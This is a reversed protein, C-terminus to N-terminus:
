AARDKAKRYATAMATPGRKGKARKDLMHDIWEPVGARQPPDDAGGPNREHKREVARGPTGLASM